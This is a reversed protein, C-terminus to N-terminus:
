YRIANYRLCIQKDGSDAAFAIGRFDFVTDFNVVVVCNNRPNFKVQSDVLEQINMMQYFIPSSVFNM